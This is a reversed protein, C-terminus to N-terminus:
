GRRRGFPFAPALGKAMVSLANEEDPVGELRFAGKADSKTEPVSDSSVLLGWRVVAQAVPKNEPGVITGSVTRRNM